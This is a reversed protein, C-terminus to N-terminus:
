FEHNGLKALYMSLAFFMWAQSWRIYPIKNTLYRAKQYYFFGKQDQMNDIAWKAIKRALFISDSSFRELELCTIIGQACCHIDIPFLSNHFYKPCGDELWFVTLFKKFAAELLNRWTLDSSYEMWKKLAVLNFGTHFNDIFRHHSREGYPWLHEPTLARMSFTIAKRSKELYKQEGTHRYVRAMMSAGLMNANHVKANQGPIYGFCLSDEKEFLVLHDLIFNCSKQALDLAEEDGAKEFYDLFANSVFVTTVINPVGLPVYFARAQWPFNYGWSVGAFGRCVMDKLSDLLRQAENIRNQLILGSAFLGFAKPNIGKPVVAVQRFNVPSRKFLQIWVLRLLRSSYFPSTNFRISNLGDFNDWGKYDQAKCYRDLSEFASGIM